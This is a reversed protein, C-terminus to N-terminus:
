REIISDYTMTHMIYRTIDREEMIHRKVTNTIIGAIIYSTYSIYRASCPDSDATVPLKKYWQSATGTHVEIQGGGMRGDIIFVDNNGLMETAIQKRTDLSDVAIIVIGSVNEKGTFKADVMEVICAPNHALIHTQIADVKKTGCDDMTYAQSATNHEEVTDNDYVTIRAIGMKALAVATHSGINGVGVITVHTSGHARPDYIGTQRKHKDSM